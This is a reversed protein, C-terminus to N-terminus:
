SESVTAHRVMGSATSTRAPPHPPSPRIKSSFGYSFRCRMIIRRGHAATGHALEFNKELVPREPGIAIAGAPIALPPLAMKLTVLVSRGSSSRQHPNHTAVGLRTPIQNRDAHLARV